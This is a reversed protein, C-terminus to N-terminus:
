CNYNKLFHGLRLIEVFTLAAASSSFSSAPFAICIDRKQKAPSVFVSSVLSFCLFFIEVLITNAQM